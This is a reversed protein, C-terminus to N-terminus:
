LSNHSSMLSMLFKPFAHPLFQPLSSPESPITPLCPRLEKIQLLFHGRRLGIDLFLMIFLTFLQLQVPPRDKPFTGLHVRMCSQPSTHIGHHLTRFYRNGCLFSFRWCIGLQRVLLVYCGMSVCQSGSSEGKQFRISYNDDNDLSIMFTIIGYICNGFWWFKRKTM